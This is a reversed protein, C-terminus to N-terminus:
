NRDNEREDAISREQILAVTPYLNAACCKIYWLYMAKNQKDFKRQHIQKRNGEFSAYDKRFKEENKM